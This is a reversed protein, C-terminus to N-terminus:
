APKLVSETHKLRQDFHRAVLWTVVDAPREDHDLKKALETAPKTRINAVYTRAQDV